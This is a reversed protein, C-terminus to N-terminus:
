CRSLQPRRPSPNGVGLALKNHCCAIKSNPQMMPVMIRLKIRACALETFFHGMHVIREVSASADEDAPLLSIQFLSITKYKEFNLAGVAV